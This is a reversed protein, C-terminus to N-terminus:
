EQRDVFVARSPINVKCRLNFAILSDQVPLQDPDLGYNPMDVM